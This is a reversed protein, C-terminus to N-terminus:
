KELVLRFINGVSTNDFAVISGYIIVAPEGEASVSEVMGNVFGALMGTNNYGAALSGDPNLIMLGRRVYGDYKEFNGAVVLKGNNLQIAHNPVGGTFTRSQFSTVMSGDENLMVIGNCPVGNFTTFNGTVIIKKTNKNYRLSYIRDNAGTGAKFSGDINGNVDLCAINAASVNDFKNFFGGVVLRGDPLLAGDTLFGAAGPKGRHMNLDYHYTSDLNGNRDIAAVSNIDRRDITRQTKTSNKYFYQVYGYFNGLMLVRNGSQYMNSVQGTVGGNLASVTDKSRNEQQAPDTSGAADDAPIIQVVATDILGAPHIRVVNNLEKRYGYRDFFGGLIFKNDSLQIGSSIMGTRGVASDTKFAAVFDGHKEIMAIGNLPNGIGNSNYVKFAGLLLYRNDSTAILQNISQDTGTGSKFTNDIRAKGKVKFVATYFTQQGINVSGTGSSAAPPVVVTISNDTVSTVQAQQGSLFFHLSDKYPLLGTVKFTVKDGSSGVAPSPLETSFVVGLPPKGGAYPDPYVTENDKKCAAALAVLLLLYMHKKIM